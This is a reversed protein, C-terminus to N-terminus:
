GICGRYAQITQSCIRKWSFDQHVKRKGNEILTQRLVPDGLIDNIAQALQKSNGPEVLRGIQQSTIIDTIGGVQSAVVALDNAMAELLVVGLGETEGSSDCISPLVFVTAVKYLANLEEESVFGTFVTHSAVNLQDARAELQERMPGDGAVVARVNPHAGAIDALARLLIQVGKREVLRGVFLVVRCNESISWKERVGRIVDLPVPRFKEQNFSYPIVSYSRPKTIKLIKSLTFTSIAILHDVHNLLFRTLATGRDAFVEAGPMTLVLPIRRLRATALGALGALSWHAHLLDCDKSEYWGTLFFGLLLLPVQLVVWPKQRLNNAIGSGYCLCQLKSPLFYYFRRVRIGEVDELGPTDADHPAIVTVQIGTRVLERALGFLFAGSHDGAHRPYSTTLM